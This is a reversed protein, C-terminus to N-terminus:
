FGHGHRRAGMSKVNTPAEFVLGAPNPRPAPGPPESLQALEQVNLGASGQAGRHM